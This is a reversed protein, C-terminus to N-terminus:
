KGDRELYYFTIEERETVLNRETSFRNFAQELSEKNYVTFDDKQDIKKGLTSNRYSLSLVLNYDNINRSRKKNNM